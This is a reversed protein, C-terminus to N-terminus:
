LSRLCTSTCRARAPLKSRCSEGADLQPRRNPPWCGPTSARPEGAAAEHGLPTGVPAKREGFLMAVVAV